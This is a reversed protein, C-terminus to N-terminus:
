NLQYEPLTLLLYLAGRVQLLPYKQTGDFTVTPQASTTNSTMYSVIAQKRADPLTGDLLFFSFHDVFREPSTLKYAYIYEQLFSQGGAVTSSPSKQQATNDGLLANMYNLRSMWTGSNLWLTSTKDGPWGAVNPPNLLTQGMAETAVPLTKGDGPISLARYVGVAYEVPSKIRARYAKPSSFQPSLLLARMVSGMNHGSTNYADILPQIDSASPNEYAFFTFLKNAIFGPTAPHNALINLVDKYDLNGTHGLYTKTLQNHRVINYSSTLPDVADLEWGTLAAAGESVDQQTYHGLGLTFLEMLERAYNENPQKATSSALDLYFLMAPDTTGALLLNDFTDFAHIRLTNVQNIMRISDQQGGVKSQASVFHGHWFLTMKELLPRQTWAMKLLWWQAQQTFNSMDLNLAALRQNVMEESVQQYNLLRDVSGNFGLSTYFALDEPTASFGAHRLLHGIQTNGSLEPPFLVNWHQWGEEIGIGALLTGAGVFAATKASVGMLKRRPIKKLNGPYEACKAESSLTLIDKNTITTMNDALPLVLPQTSDPVLNESNSVDNKEEVPDM